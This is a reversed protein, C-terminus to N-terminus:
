RAGFVIEAQSGEGIGKERFWGQRVELAYMAPADSEYLEEVEPQMRQLDVIRMSADMYAISLPVYTNRMWFSRVEQREFVFLMGTGDPVSDRYMLGREREAATSAIEATVTDTGFVVWAHGRPPLGSRAPPTTDSAAPSRGGGTAVDEDDAPSCAWSALVALLLLPWSSAPGRSGRGAM